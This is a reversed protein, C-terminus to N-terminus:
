KIGKSKLECSFKLTRLIFKWKSVLGINWKSYGYIRKPFMVKIRTMYIGCKKAMYLAYLDLAFDNPPNQWSEWFNRPFINPQANIDCMKIGFYLTEFLSMGDTFLQDLWPRGKRNGKVYINKNPSNEIIDYARAVDNPDTQMDAHTWGIYEGKAAKLGQVIGYGYGKNIEVSVISAFEYQPLLSDIVAASEDTSGNNVLIVDINRNGIVKAFRNLLLPINEAENYCPVVITMNMAIGNGRKGDKMMRCINFKNKM